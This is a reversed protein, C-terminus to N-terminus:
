YGYLEEGYQMTLDEWVLTANMLAAQFAESGESTTAATIYTTTRKFYEELIDGAFQSHSKAVFQLLDEDCWTELAIEKIADKKRTEDPIGYEYGGLKMMLYEMLDRKTVM